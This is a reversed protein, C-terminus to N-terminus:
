PNKTNPAPTIKKEAETVYEDLKLEIVRLVKGSMQQVKPDEAVRQAAYAGVMVYATRESPLLTSVLLLLTCASGTIWLWYNKVSVSETKAMLLLVLVIFLFISFLGTLASLRELISIVWILLALEM